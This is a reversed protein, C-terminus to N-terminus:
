FLCCGPFFLFYLYALDLFSALPFFSDGYLYCGPSSLSFLFSSPFFPFLNSLGWFLCCEPQYVFDLSAPICFVPWFSLALSDPQISLISLPGILLPISLFLSPVLPMSISFLGLSPISSMPWLFSYCRLFLPVVSHPVFFPLLVDLSLLPLVSCLSVGAALYRFVPVLLVLSLLRLRLLVLPYYSPLLFYMMSMYLCCLLCLLVYPSCLLLLCLPILVIRCPCLYSCLCTINPHHPLLSMSPHVCFLSGGLPHAPLFSVISCIRFFM